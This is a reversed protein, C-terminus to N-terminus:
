FKKLYKLKSINYKMILGELYARDEPYTLKANLESLKLYKPYCSDSIAFEVLSKLNKCKTKINRLLRYSIFEPTVFEVFEEKAPVQFIKKNKIKAVGNIVARAPCACGYESALKNLQNLQNAKTLPRNADVLAILDKEKLKINRKLEIIGNYFSGMRVKTGICIIINNKQLDYYNSIIKETSNKTEELTVVIIKQFTKIKLINSITWIIIPVGKLLVLHKPKKSKGFREGSGSALIIASSNIKNKLTM